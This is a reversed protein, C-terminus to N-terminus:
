PEPSQPVKGASKPTPSHLAVNRLSNKPLPFSVRQLVRVKCTQPKTNKTKVLLGLLKPSSAEKRGAMLIQMTPWGPVRAGQTKDM